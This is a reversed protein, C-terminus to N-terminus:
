IEKHKSLFKQVEDYQRSQNGYKVYTKVTRLWEITSPSTREISLLLDNMRIPREIRTHMIEDIVNETALEVVNEIDAGSYLETALALANFDISDTPRESLKLQFIVKRAELDPPPVFQLRDFRGPRKFAPDVDWPTNTAGIVLIQETSSNLGDLETLLQDIVGRLLHSSSKGRHFGLTDIEDFFLICPAGARASGFVDHLQQESVGLYPDLIDNISIGVFKARCEGATAKAMFTKGCGPPGYLLIGGGSKKRFKEFLGPSAFPEIIKLRISKKVQDLGGVDAFTVIDNAPIAAKKGLGGQIVHIGGAFSKVVGDESSSCSVSEEPESTVSLPKEPEASTSLAILQESVQSKLKDDSYQLARGFAELASSREGAHVYELGLLYWLSGNSESDKLLQRIIEVQSM